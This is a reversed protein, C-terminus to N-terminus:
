YIEQEDNKNWWKELEIDVIDYDTKDTIPMIILKDGDKKYYSSLIDDDKDKYVIFQKNNKEFTFLLECLLKNNNVDYIEMM